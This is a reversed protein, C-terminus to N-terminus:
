YVLPTNLLIVCLNDNAINYIQNKGIKVMLKKFLHHKLVNMLSIGIQDM